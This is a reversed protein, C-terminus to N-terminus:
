AVGSRTSEILVRLENLLKAPAAESQARLVPLTEKKARKKAV